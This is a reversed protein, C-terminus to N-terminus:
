TYFANLGLFLKCKVFCFFHLVIFVNNL